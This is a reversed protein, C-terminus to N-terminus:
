STALPTVYPYPSNQSFPTHVIWETLPFPPMCSFPIEHVVLVEHVATPLRVSLLPLTTVTASCQFPV